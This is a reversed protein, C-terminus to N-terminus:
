AAEGSRIEQCAQLIASLSDVAQQKETEGAPHTSYRAAEFLRTLQAVAGAPLGLEALRREFERPTMSEKRQVGRQQSVARCMQDYCRLIVNSLDAGGQLDDLAAQAEDELWHLPHPNRRRKWARWAIWALLLVIVLGLLFALWQPSQQAQVEGSTIEPPKVDELNFQAPNLKFKGELVQRRIVLFAIITLIIRLIAGLLEDRGSAFGGARRRPVLLWFLAFVVAALFLTLFFGRLVGSQALLDSLEQQAQRDFLHGSDLQLRAIGAALLVFALLTGALLIGTLIRSRRSM